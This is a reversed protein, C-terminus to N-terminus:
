VRTKQMRQGTRSLAAAWSSGKSKELSWALFALLFRSHFRGKLFPSMSVDMSVKLHPLLEWQLRVQYYWQGDFTCALGTYRSDYTLKIEPGAIKLAAKHLHECAEHDVVVQTHSVSVPGDDLESVLLPGDVRTLIRIRIGTRNWTRNAYLVYLSWIRWGSGIPPNTILREAQRAMLARLRVVACM